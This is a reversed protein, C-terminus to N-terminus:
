RVVAGVVYFVFISTLIGVGIFLAAGAGGVFRASFVGRATGCPETM